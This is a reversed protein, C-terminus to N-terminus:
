NTKINDKYEINIGIKKNMKIYEDVYGLLRKYAKQKEDLSFKDLKCDQKLMSDYSLSSETLIESAKSVSEEGITM